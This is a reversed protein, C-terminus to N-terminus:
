FKGGIEGLDREGNEEGGRKSRIISIAGGIRTFPGSFVFVNITPNPM